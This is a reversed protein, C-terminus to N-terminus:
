WSFCCCMLRVVSLLWSGCVFLILLVCFGVVSSVCFIFGIVCWFMLSLSLLCWLIMVRLCWWFIVMCWLLMCWFVMLLCGIWGIGCGCGVRLRLLIKMFCVRVVVSVVYVGSVWFCYVSMLCVLIILWWWVRLLGCVGFCCCWFRLILWLM